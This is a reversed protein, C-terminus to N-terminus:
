PISRRSSRTALGRCGRDTTKERIGAPGPLYLARLRGNQCPRRYTGRLSRGTCGSGPFFWCVAKDFSEARRPDDPPLLFEALRRYTSARMYADGKSITDQTRAALAKVRDATAAWQTTGARDLDGETIQKTTELM